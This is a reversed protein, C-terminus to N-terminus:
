RLPTRPASGSWQDQDHYGFATGEDQYSRWPGRLQYDREDIPPYRSDASSRVSERESLPRFQWGNTRGARRSELEPDHRFQYGDHYRDVDSFSRGAVSSNSTAEPDHWHWRPEQSWDDHDWDRDQDRGRDRGRDWAQDSEQRQRNAQWAQEASPPRRWDDPRESM